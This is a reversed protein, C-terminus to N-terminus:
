VYINIKLLINKGFTQIKAMIKIIKKGKKLKHQM